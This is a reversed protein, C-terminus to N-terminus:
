FNCKPLIPNFYKLRTKSIDYTFSDIDKEMKFNNNGGDPSHCCSLTVQMSLNSTKNALVSLRLPRSLMTMQLGRYKSLAFSLNTRVALIQVTM